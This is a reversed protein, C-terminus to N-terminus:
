SRAAQAIRFVEVPLGDIWTVGSVREVAEPGSKLLLNINVGPRSNAALWGGDHGWGHPYCVAGQMVDATVRVPVTVEGAESRLRVADGTSVDRSRADEPHMLLEPHQSRGLRDPNHMWSNMSKLARRGFLRLRRDAPHRRVDAFRDFEAKLIPHWLRIRGDELALHEQWGDYALPLDLMVGHPTEALAALSLGPRRGTGSGLPGGRLGLDVMELPRLDLGDPMISGRGMRASLDTFIALEDRAEGVKPIIPPSYQIFPRPMHSLGILPVDDKELFTASPLVYHAFRNSETVYLDMSVLLDLSALAQELRPGGPASLIPNGAVLMMARVQGDGPELIDDPLVAAAMMGGVLPIDGIRTRAEGYGQLPEPGNNLPFAGFVSGGPRAFKGGCINLADVLVNALTSFRGRCLGVRSYIAARPAAAFDRALRRIADAPVGTRDGAAEPTIEAVAARLEAAGTTHADLFGEDALGEEFLTRLMAALLWADTDPRVFIHEFREATETRRPDVVVIRGRAAIADLDHRLRPATLLGGHSVLPNAGIVLLFDCNPLDPICNRFAVGYLLWSALHRSTSDQTGATYFKRSQLRALFWQSSMFTDTSFAGPNGFYAAFAEPGYQQLVGDLRRAIDSLAEDWSVPEFEGPGGIRKLPRTVRDPDYAVEAIAPGKVCIHGRSHPNDRDSGIRVIRGGEVHAVMGCFAECLRCFTVHDGDEGPAPRPPAM